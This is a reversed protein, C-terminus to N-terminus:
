IQRHMRGARQEFCAVAMSSLAITFHVDRRKFGHQGPRELEDNVFVLM